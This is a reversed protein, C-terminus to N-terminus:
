EQERTSSRRRKRGSAVSINDRSESMDDCKDVPARAQKSHLKKVKCYVFVTFHEKGTSNMSIKHIMQFNKLGFKATAEPGFYWALILWNSKNLLQSIGEMDEASM